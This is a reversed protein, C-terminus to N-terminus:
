VVTEAVTIRLAQEVLQIHNIITTTSSGAFLLGLANGDLDLVLSGSDGGESMYGAVIQDHFRAVRGGGYGVSVAANLAVVKGRTYDTTRGTKQLSEGLHVGNKNRVAEPEGIFHVRRDVNEFRTCAVAADVVNWAGFGFDMPVFRCLEAVQDRGLVGGDAPAPQLIPDGLSASNSNALIHNNSLIHFLGAGNSDRVGIAVTGATIQYHGVSYGGVAPRVRQRLGQALPPEMEDVDVPVEVGKSAPVTLPFRESDPVQDAPKKEVVYAKVCIEPTERGGRVRYGVAVAVLNPRRFFDDQCLDRAEAAEAFTIDAM